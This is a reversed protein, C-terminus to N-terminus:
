PMRAWFDLSHEAVYDTGMREPALSQVHGTSVDPWDPLDARAPDGHRAFTTWYQNM